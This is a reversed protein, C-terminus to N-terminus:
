VKLVMVASKLIIVKNGHSMFILGELTYFDIPILKNLTLQVTIVM